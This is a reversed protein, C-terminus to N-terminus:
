VDFVELFRVVAQIMGPLPQSQRFCINDNYDYDDAIGQRFVGDVLLTPNDASQLNARPLELPLLTTFSPGISLEAVNHLMFAIRNVRRTSGISTGQASGDKSRMLQADSNYGYGIQVKAAPYALHLSGVSNVSSSVHIGGDTLISVTENALWTLGTITTVMKRIVASGLYATYAASSVDAGLYNQIKFATASVSAVVFTQENVLNNTTTNGNVDVVSSNLGVATYVRIQSSASLGHGPVTFVCSPSNTIASVPIPSDYTAGCDVYYSDEQLSTYDYPRTTYEITVVNSGAINRQVAMWLEEYFASSASAIAMSKVVPPSGASDSQGGLAHRAWGAKISVDDRNYTLSTIQGDSRLGWILPQIEKQVVLQTISPLTLHEALESLNTSRFSGAQFFYNLERVKRQAKQIYLVQNGVQVADVNATGYSAFQQATINTPTIAGNTNNPSIVWEGSLSAGLLGQSTPKLWRMPNVDASLLRFSVANADTVQYNSGSAAYREYDAVYSGDIQEPANPSGAFYLRDQHLCSASPWSSGGFVGLQWVRNTNDDPMPTSIIARARGGTTVQSIMGWYRVGSDSLSFLRGADSQKFVYPRVWTSGTPTAGNFQAQVDITTSGIVVAKWYSPTASPTGINQDTRIETQYGAGDISVLDGSSFNHNSPMVLRTLGSGNNGISVIQSSSGTYLDVLSGSGSKLGFAGSFISSDIKIWTQASDGTYDRTNFPLYPGDKLLIPKLDWYQGSSLIRQLKYPRFSPHTLYLTDEKQTWKIKSLDGIGFPTQMELAVGSSAQVVSIIQGASAGGTITQETIDGYPTDRVSYFTGFLANTGVPKPLYVPDYSGGTCMFSSGNTLIQGNQTYFRCYFDGFELVYSQTESVKFPILIPPKTSDKVTTVFKTGPRRLLPGQLTPFYNLCSQLASDYRDSDVRGWVSQAIEGTDFHTQIKSLKPM